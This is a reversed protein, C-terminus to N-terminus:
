AAQGTALVSLTEMAEEPARLPTDFHLRAFQRERRLDAGEPDLGVIRWGTSRRKLVNAALRDALGERNALRDLIVPLSAAFSAPDVGDAGGDLQVEDAHLTVARAFGGVFRGGEVTMAYMRFDGFGAYLAADPHQCLFRATAWGQDAEALPAVNGYVTVRPGTQPNALGSAAEFLLSARPSQKLNRSHDALDSLLMIPRATADCAVTVLSAFPLDEMKRALTALSAHRRSRILRRAALAADERSIRPDAM